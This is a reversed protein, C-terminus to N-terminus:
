FLKTQEKVSYESETSNYKESKVEGIVYIYGDEMLTNLSRRISTLPYKEERKDGCLIENIYHYIKSAGARQLNYLANLVNTEQNQKKDLFSYFNENRIRETIKGM